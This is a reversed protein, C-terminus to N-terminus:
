FSFSFLFVKHSALGQRPDPQDYGVEFGIEFADFGTELAEFSM